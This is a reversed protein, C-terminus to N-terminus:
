LPVQLYTDGSLDNLRGSEVVSPVVRTYTAPMTLKRLM